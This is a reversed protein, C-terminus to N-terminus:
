IPRMVRQERLQKLLVTMEPQVLNLAAERWAKGLTTPDTAHYGLRGYLSVAAKPTGPPVFILAAEAMLQNAAEEIAALVQPGVKERLGAPNIYLEEICAVLNEVHWAVVGVLQGELLAIMFGKDAFSQLVGARDVRPGDSRVRNLFTVIEGIDGPRARRVVAATEATESL